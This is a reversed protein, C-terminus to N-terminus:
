GTIQSSRIAQDNLEDITRVTKTYAEFSRSASVLDIMSEVVSINAMELSRPVLNPTVDTVQGGGNLAFRTGEVRRLQSLDDIAVVRLRGIQAKDVIVAGAGTIQAPGPPFTIPGGDGSVQM